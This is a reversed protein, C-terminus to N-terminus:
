RDDTPAPGAGSGSGAKGEEEEGSRGRVRLSVRGTGGEERSRQRREWLEGLSAFRAQLTSFRFRQATNDIHARDGRRFLGEVRARAERPPRPLRGAFFLIYEAELRRLDGTITRLIAEIDSAESVRV